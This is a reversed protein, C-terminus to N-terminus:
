DDDGNEDSIRVDVIKIRRGDMEKVQFHIHDFEAEDGEEPIRGMLGLVMGGLTEYELMEDMDLTALDAFEGIPMAAGIQYHRGEEFVVIDEGDGHLYEDEMHGIIQAFVDSM